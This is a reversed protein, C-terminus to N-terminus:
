RIVIWKVARRGQKVRLLMSPIQVTQPLAHNIGALTKECKERRRRVDEKERLFEMLESSKLADRLSEVLQAIFFHQICRPVTDIINLKITNFCKVVNKKTNIIQQKGQDFIFCYFFLSWVFSRFSSLSVTFSLSVLTTKFRELDGHSCSWGLEALMRQTLWINLGNTLGKRWDHKM